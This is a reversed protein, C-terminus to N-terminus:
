TRILFRTSIERCKLVNLKFMISFFIELNSKITWPLLKKKKLYLYYYYM